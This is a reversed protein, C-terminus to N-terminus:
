IDSSVTSDFIHAEREISEKRQREIAKRKSPKVREFETDGKDQLAQFVTWEEVTM